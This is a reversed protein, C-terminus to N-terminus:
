PLTSVHRPDSDSTIYNSFLMIRVLEQLRALPVLLEPMTEKLREAKEVMLVLRVGEYQRREGKGKGKGSAANPGFTKELHANAARLGQIFADTNENWRLETSSGGEWNSCGEEWDPSYGVLEHIISEFFLRPTFCKAVDACGLCIKFTPLEGHREDTTSLDELVNRLIDRTSRYAQPDHVYIFSPPYNSILASLELVISEYGAVDISPQQPEPQVMPALPPFAVAVRRVRGM